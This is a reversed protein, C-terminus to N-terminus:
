KVETKKMVPGLGRKLVIKKAEDIPVRAMGTVPDVSRPAHLVALAKENFAALDEEENIQLRPQPPLIREGVLMSSTQSAAYNKEYSFYLAKMSLFSIVIVVGIGVLCMTLAKLGIDKDQYDPDSIKPQDSM